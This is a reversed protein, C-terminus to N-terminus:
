TLVLALVSAAITTMISRMLSIFSHAAAKENARESRMVLAPTSGYALGSGCGVITTSALIPILTWRAVSGEAADPARSGITALTLAALGYGFVIVFGGFRGFRPHGEKSDLPGATGQALSSGRPSRAM